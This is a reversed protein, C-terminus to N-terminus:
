FSFLINEIQQKGRTAPDGSINLWEFALNWSILALNNEVYAVIRRYLLRLCSISVSLWRGIWRVFLLRDHNSGHFESFLSAKLRRILKVRDLWNGIYLKIIKLRYSGIEIKLACFNENTRRVKSEFSEYFKVDVKVNPM